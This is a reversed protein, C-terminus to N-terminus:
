SVDISGLEIVRTKNIRLCSIDFWCKRNAVARYKFYTINHLFSYIQMKSAISNSKKYLKLAFEKNSENLSALSAEQYINESVLIDIM